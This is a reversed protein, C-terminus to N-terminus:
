QYLECLQELKNERSNREDKAEKEEEEGGEGEEVEEREEIEEVDEKEEDSPLIEGGEGEEQSLHEMDVKESESGSQAEQSLDVEQSLEAEQSNESEAAAAQEMQRMATHVQAASISSSGKFTGRKYAKLEVEYREKDQRALSEYPDREPPSMIRWHEALRQALKGVGFEPNEAKIGPRKDLSYFMFASRHTHTHTHTHVYTCTFAHVKTYTYAGYLVICNM